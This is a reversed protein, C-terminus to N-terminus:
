AKYWPPDLHGVDYGIVAFAGHADDGNIIWRHVCQPVRNARADPVGYLLTLIIRVGLCEENHSFAAGKHSTSVDTLKALRHLLRAQRLHHIKNFSGILGHDSGDMARRQTTAQFYGETTVVTYGYRTGFHAQGFDLQAQQGTSTTRLAQRAQGTGLFGQFHDGGTIENGGFVSLSGANNIFHGAAFVHFRCTQRKCLLDNIFTTRYTTDALQIVLQFGLFATIDEILEAVAQLLPGATQDGRELAGVRHFGGKGGRRKFVAHLALAFQETLQHFGVLTGAQDVREKGLTFNGLNGPQGLVCRYPLDFGNANNACAGHTATDGHVEGVNANRDGNRFHLLFGQVLTKGDDTAVVFVGGFFAAQGHLLHFLAHAQDVAREGIVIEGIHVQHDFGYELPHIDFLADEALQVLLTLRTCDQGGVRRGQVNVLNGGRGFARFIHDAQMEEARGVDHLQQLDDAAFLGRIFDFGCGHRQGLADLFDANQHAVAVAEDAVAHQVLAACLGHGQDVITSGRLLHVLHQGVQAEGHPM